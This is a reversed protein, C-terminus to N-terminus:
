QAAAVPTAPIRLAHAAGGSSQGAAEITGISAGTISEANAASYSRRSVISAPTADASAM